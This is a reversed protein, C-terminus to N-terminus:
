LGDPDPTTIHRDIRRDQVKGRLMLLKGFAWDSLSSKLAKEARGWTYKEDRDGVPRIGIFSGDETKFALNTHIDKTGTYNPPPVMM